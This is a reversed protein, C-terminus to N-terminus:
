CQVIAAGRPIALQKIEHVFGNDMAWQPTKVVKDGFLGAASDANAALTTRERFVSLIKDNDRAILQGLEDLRAAGITVGNPQGYQISHFMFCAAPSCLRRKGALFIVNASSGIKGTNYVTVELPLGRITNYAHFAPDAMGGGSTLLLCVRSVGENAASVMVQLLAHVHQYDIPSSFVIYRTKADQVM